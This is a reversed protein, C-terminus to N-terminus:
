FTIAEKLNSVLTRVKSFSSDAAVATVIASGVIVGDAITAIEKAQAPTSVGFGVAVPKTTIATVRHLFQPLDKPLSTRVGTVGKRSVAYVFGTSATAAKMIRENSSTPAVLFNLGINYKEASLLLEVAEEPPLDPIILGGCGAAMLDEMLCDIGRQIIMNYYIMLVVPVPLGYTVTKLVSVLKSFTCGNELARQGAAQIVPGDAVPDSFPVGVEILDAGNEALLELLRATEKLGPDGGMIYPILAKRKETRLIQFKSTVQNM